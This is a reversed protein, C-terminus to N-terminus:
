GLRIVSKHRANRWSLLPLKNIIRCKVVGKEKGIHPVQHVCPHHINTNKPTKQSLHKVVTEEHTFVHPFM